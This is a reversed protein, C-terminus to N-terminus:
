EGANTLPRVREIVGTRETDIPNPYAGLDEGVHAPLREIHHVRGGRVIAFDLASALMNHFDNFLRRTWVWDGNPLEVTIEYNTMSM